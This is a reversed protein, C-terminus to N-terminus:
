EYKNIINFIKKNLFIFSKNNVIIHDCYKKKVDEKIQRKDLALFISKKGGKKLYRKLRNRKSASIFIVVDFYKMLKSEVLLPIELIIIKKNKNKQIFKKMELRVLPHTIKELLKLNNKKDLVIKKIQDKINSPRNIKFKKQLMKLYFKKKYLNKVILDASFIPYKKKLYKTVTSKGSALSGTIGIRIM